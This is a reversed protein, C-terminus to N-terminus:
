GTYFSRISAYNQTTLAPVRVRLAEPRSPGSNPSIALSEKQIIEPGLKSGFASIQTPYCTPPMFVLAQLLRQPEPCHQEWNREPQQTAKPLDSAREPGKDM